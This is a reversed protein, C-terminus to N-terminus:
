IARKVGWKEGWDSKGENLPWPCLSCTSNPWFISFLKHVFIQNIIDHKLVNEVTNDSCVLCSQEKGINKTTKHPFRGELFIYHMLGIEFQRLLFQPPMLINFSQYSSKHFENQVKCFTLSWSAPINLHALSASIRNKEFGTFTFVGIVEWMEQESSVLDESQQQRFTSPTISAITSKYRFFLIKSQIKFEETWDIFVFCWNTM